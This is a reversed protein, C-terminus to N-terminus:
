EMGQDPLIQISVCTCVLNFIYLGQSIWYGCVLLLICHLRFFLLFTSNGLYITCLPAIHLLLVRKLVQLSYLVVHTVMYQLQLYLLSVLLIITPHYYGKFLFVCLFIHLLLTINTVKFNMRDFYSIVIVWWFDWVLWKM